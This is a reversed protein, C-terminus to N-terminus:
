LIIGLHGVRLWNVFDNSNGELACIQYARAKAITHRPPLGDNNHSHTGSSSRVVHARLSGLRHSKAVLMKPSAMAGEKIGCM